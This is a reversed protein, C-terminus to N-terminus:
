KMLVMLVGLVQVRLMAPRGARRRRGGRGQPSPMMGGGGRSGARRQSTPIRPPLPRPMPSMTPRRGRICAAVLMVVGATITHVPPLTSDRWAGSVHRGHVGGAERGGGGAGRPGRRSRSSSIGGVVVGPGHRGPGAGPVPHRSQLPRHPVRRVWGSGIIMSVSGLGQAGVIAEPLEQLGPGIGGIGGGQHHQLELGHGPVHPQLVDQMVKGGELHTRPQPTHAHKAVKCAHVGVAM